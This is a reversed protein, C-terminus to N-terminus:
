QDISDSAQSVSPGITALNAPVHGDGGAATPLGGACVACEAAFADEGNVRRGDAGLTVLGQQDQVAERGRREVVGGDEVAQPGPTTDQEEVHDPVPQGGLGVPGIGHRQLGVHGSREDGREPDLAQGQEAVVHAVRDTALEQERRPSPVHATSTVCRTRVFPLM